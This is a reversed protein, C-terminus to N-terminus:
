KVKGFKELPWVVLVGKGDIEDAEIPGIFDARSDDSANRNDGMVFYEDEGLTVPEAAIGPDEIEEEMRYPDEIPEGNVYIVSGIIQVTEGPLGYVRKIYYAEVDRGYPYVRVVDYRDLGGLRFFLKDILVSDGEIYNPEMSQGEVVTRQLVYNPIVYLFLVLCVALIIWEMWQNRRHAKKWELKRQREIIEKVTYERQAM